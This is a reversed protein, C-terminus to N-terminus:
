NIYTITININWQSNIHIHRGTTSKLYFEVSKVANSKENFQKALWSSAINVTYDTKHLPIYINNIIENAPIVFLSEYFTYTTQSGLVLLSTDFNSKILDSCVMIYDNYYSNKFILAPKISEISTINIYNIKDFGLVKNLSGYNNLNINNFRFGIGFKAGTTNIITFKYTSYNFNIKFVAVPNFVNSYQNMNNELIQILTGVNYIYDNAIPLSITTDRPDINSSILNNNSDYLNMKCNLDTFVDYEKFIAYASNHVKISEYAGVPPINSGTYTYSNNYVNNGFGILPGISNRLSFNLNFLQGNTTYITYNSLLNTNIAYIDNSYTIPNNYYVQFITTGLTNNIANTILLALDEDTKPIDINSLNQQSVTITTPIGSIPYTIIFQDNSAGLLDYEYDIYFKNLIISDIKGSFIGDPFVTTINNSVETLNTDNLNSVIFNRKDAM